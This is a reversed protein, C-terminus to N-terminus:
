QNNNTKNCNEKNNKIDNNNKNKIYHNSQKRISHILYFQKMTNSVTYIIVVCCDVTAIGNPLVVVDGLPKGIIVQPPTLHEM